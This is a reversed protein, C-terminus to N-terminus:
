EGLSKDNLPQTIMIGDGGIVDAQIGNINLFVPKKTNKNATKILQFMREYISNTGGGNQFSDNLDITVRDKTEKISNIKVDAPIESSLGQHNEVFSPGKLLEKIAFDVKSGNKKDYPRKIIKYVTEGKTNTGVFAVSVFNKHSNKKVNIKKITKEVNTSAEDVSQQVIEQGQKVNKNLDFKSNPFNAMKIYCGAGIIIVGLTCIQWKKMISGKKKKAM